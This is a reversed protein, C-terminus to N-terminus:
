SDDANVRSIRAAQQYYLEFRDLSLALVEAPNIHFFHAVEFARDIL